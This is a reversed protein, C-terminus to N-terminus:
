NKHLWKENGVDGRKYYKWFFKGRLGNLTQPTNKDMYLADYKFEMKHEDFIEVIFKLYKERVNPISCQLSREKPHM